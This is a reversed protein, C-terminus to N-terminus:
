DSSPLPRPEQLQMEKECCSVTGESGRTCLVETGCTECKFRKGLQNMIGEGIHVAFGLTLPAVEEVGDTSWM